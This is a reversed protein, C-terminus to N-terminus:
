VEVGFSCGVGGLDFYCLCDVFCLGVYCFVVCWDGVGYVFGDVVCGGWGGGVVGLLYVFM